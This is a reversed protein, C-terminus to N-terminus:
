DYKKKRFVQTFQFSRVATKNFLPKLAQRFTITAYNDIKFGVKKMCKTWEVEKEVVTVVTDSVSAIFKACSPWVDEPLRGIVMFCLALDFKNVGPYPIQQTIDTIELTTRPIMLYPYVVETNEVGAIEIGRDLFNKLFEGIGCGVDIVSKPNFQKVLQDCVPQARWAIHKRKSFFDKDFKDM